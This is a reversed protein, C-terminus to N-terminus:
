RRLIAGFGKRMGTAIMIIGSVAIFFGITLGILPGTSVLLGVTSSAITQYLVSTTSM